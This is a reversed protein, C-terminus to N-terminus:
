RLLARYFRRVNNVAAPDTFELTGTLNTVTALPSWQDLDTSAQIEFPMGQWCQIRLVGAGRAQLRPPETVTLFQGPAVDHLEQVIGSPWEIRLTNIIRADGLGFHARLDNQSGRGSGGSVERLQWTSLGGIIAQVKVKAGIANRNSMTGILRVTLWRNTNGTNRYLFNNQNSGNCVYLDLFGDNDFDGWACGRSDGGDNVLSGTIINAFTGDGNNRYLSNNEGNVNSVFLDLFGDADYDGWACGDSKESDTVIQGTTIRSFTGDGNNRYLLNNQPGATGGNAVFLDPFGDNDYDGWAAGISSAAVLRISPHAVAELSGATNQYLSGIGGNSAVFLDPDGDNDFDAWSCGYHRAVTTVLSGTTIKTFSGDGKGRYLANLGAVNSAFLDLFGDKDYDAWSSSVTDGGDNSPTGRPTSSVSTFAGDGQGRFFFENEGDANLVFLDLNGDNDVDGWAGGVSDGGGSVVPGSTIREFRGEGLNRFLSENRGDRNAVFLDVLGDNNYDGWACGRSNLRESVVEGAAVKTFIDAAHLDAVPPLMLGALALVFAAITSSQCTNKM